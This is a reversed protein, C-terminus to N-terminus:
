TGPATSRKLSEVIRRLAPDNMLLSRFRQRLEDRLAAPAASVNREILREQFREIEADLEAGNKGQARRLLEGYFLEVSRAGRSKARPGSSPDSPDLAQLDEDIEDEDAM